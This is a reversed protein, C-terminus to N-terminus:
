SGGYMWRYINRTAEGVSSVVRLTQGTCWDLPDFILIKYPVSINISILGPKPGCSIMSSTTRCVAATEINHEGDCEFSEPGECGVAQYTQM